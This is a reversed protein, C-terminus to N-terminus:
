ILDAAHDIALCTPLSRDIISSPFIYLYAGAGKTIAHLARKSAAYQAAFLGVVWSAVSM